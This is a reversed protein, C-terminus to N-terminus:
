RVILAIFADPENTTVLVAREEEKCRKGSRVRRHLRGIIVELAKGVDLFLEPAGIARHNVPEILIDSFNESFQAVLVDLLIGKDNKEAVVAAWANTM